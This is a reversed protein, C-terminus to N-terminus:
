LDVEGVCCSFRQLFMNLYDWKKILLIIHKESLVTSDKTLEGILYYHFHWGKTESAFFQQFFDIEKDYM